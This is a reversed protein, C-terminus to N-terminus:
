TAARSWSSAWRAPWCPTSSTPRTTSAPPSCSSPRTPSTGRPSRGCRRTCSPRSTARGPPGTPRRDGREDARRRGAPEGVRLVGRVAGPRQGGARPLHRERRPDPRGRLARHPRRGPRLHRRGPPRLAPQHDAAAQPRGRRHLGPRRRLRRRPVAGAGPGAAVCGARRGAVGARHHDAPDPGAPVSAGRRRARLHHGPRPLQPRPDRGAVQSRRRRAEEAGRAGDAYADRTEGEAAFMEDWARGFPYNEFLDAMHPVTPGPQQSNM